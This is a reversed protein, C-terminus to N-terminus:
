ADRVLRLHRQEEPQPASTAPGTTGSTLDALMQTTQRRRSRRVYILTTAVSEHGALDALDEVSVGQEYGLTLVTHRLSHPVIDDPHDLGAGRATERLLNGLDRSTLPTGTRTAFLWGSLEAVPTGERRARATLYNSLALDARGLIDATKRHGGKNVYRLIRHGRDVGLDGDPGCRAHLIAGSRVATTAMIELIALNRLAPETGTGAARARAHGLLALLEDYTLARTQSEQDRKHRPVLRAPNDDHARNNILETYWSSVAALRANYTVPSGPDLLAIWDKVDALRAALPDVRHWDCYSLWLGLGRWYSRRTQHSKMELLWSRTVGRPGLEDAPDDRLGPLEAVLETVLRRLVPKDPARAPMPRPEYPALEVAPGANM